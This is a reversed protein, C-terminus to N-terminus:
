KASDSFSVLILSFIAVLTGITSFLMAISAIDSIMVIKMESRLNAVDSSVKLLALSLSYVLLNEIILIWLIVKVAMKLDVLFFTKAM